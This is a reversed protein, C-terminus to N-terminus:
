LNSIDDGQESKKQITGAADISENSQNEGRSVIVFARTDPNWYLDLEGGWTDVVKGNRISAPPIALYEVRQKNLLPQYGCPTLATNGPCLEAFIDGANLKDKLTAAEIEWPWRNYNLQFTKAAAEVNKILAAAEARRAKKRAMVMGAAVLGALVAIIAVVTLMEILTFGRTRSRNM